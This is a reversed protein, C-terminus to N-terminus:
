KIAAKTKAIVDAPADIMKMMLAKVDAGSRPEIAIHHKKADALFTADKTMAEFAQQLAAVRAAPVGPPAVYLRGITSNAGVFEFIARAAPDNTLDILRPVQPLETDRYLGSQALFLAEKSAVWQPRDATISEWAAAVGHAEGQEMALHVATPSKYGTVVRFKTGLFTNMLTPTIYTESSKGTSGMILQAKKAGEVTTAPSKHWIAVVSNIPATSILYNFKRVDYKVGARGTAQELAIYKLLLGIVTGDKPAANYVYNAARAGGAGPMYQAIVSPKGPIFRGLYQAVIQSHVAYSGGEAAVDISVTKGSYFDAVEDAAASGALVIGAAALVAAFAGKAKDMIKNGRNSQMSGAVSGTM